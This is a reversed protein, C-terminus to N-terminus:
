KKIPHKEEEKDLQSVYLLRKGREYGSIFSKDKAVDGADELTMGQLAWQTGIDYKNKDFNHIQHEYEEKRKQERKQDFIIQNVLMGKYNPRKNM